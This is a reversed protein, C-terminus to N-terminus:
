ARPGRIIPDTDRRRLAIVSILLATGSVLLPTLTIIDLLTRRLLRRKYRMKTTITMAITRESTNRLRRIIRKMLHRTIMMLLPMAKILLASSRRTVRIGILRLNLSLTSGNIRNRKLVENLTRMVKRNIILLESSDRNLILLLLVASCMSGNLILDSKVLNFTIRTMRRMLMNYTRVNLRCILTRLFGNRVDVRKSCLARRAVISMRGNLNLPNSITVRCKFLTTRLLDYHCRVTLRRANVAITRNLQLVYAYANLMRNIRLANMILTILRLTLTMTLLVRAIGSIILKSKTGLIFVNSRILRDKVRKSLGSVLRCLQRRAIEIGRRRNRRELLLTSNVEKFLLGNGRGNLCDNFLGDKVRILREIFKRRQFLKCTTLRRLNLLNLVTMLLRNRQITDNCMRLTNIRLNILCRRTCRTLAALYRMILALNSIRSLRNIRGTIIASTIRITNIRLLRGNTLLDTCQKRRTRVYLARTAIADQLIGLYRRLRNM